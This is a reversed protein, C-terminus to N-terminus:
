STSVQQESIDEHMDHSLVSASSTIGAELREASNLLKESRMLRPSDSTM